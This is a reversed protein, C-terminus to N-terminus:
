ECFLTTRMQSMGASQRQAIKTLSQQVRQATFHSGTNAAIASSCEFWGRKANKNASENAPQKSLYYGFFLGM